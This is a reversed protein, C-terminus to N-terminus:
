RDKKPHFFSLNFENNFIDRYMHKTGIKTLGIAKMQKKYLRYMASVSLGPELYEKETSARTYHSPIKPFLMIHNRITNRIWDPVKRGRKEQKGRQDGQSIFGIGSAEMKRDATRVRAYSIDLCVFMCIFNNTHLEQNWKEFIWQNKFSWFLNFVWLLCPLPKTRAFIGQVIFLISVPARDFKFGLYQPPTVIRM